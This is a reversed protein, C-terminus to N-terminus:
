GNLLNEVFTVFRPNNYRSLFCALREQNLSAFNLDSYIDFPFRRGRMHFYLVDLLAKEPLAYSICDKTEFGFFLKEEVGLHVIKGAPTQYVRSKGLKIATVQHEPRTGIVLADSLVTDLSIYSCECIRQSLVSLSCDKAAYLGRTARTLVSAAELNRLRRYLGSPHPDALLSQLDAKSFVGRVSPVWQALRNSDSFILSM